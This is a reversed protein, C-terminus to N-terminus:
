RGFLRPYRDRLTDAQVGPAAANGCPLATCGHPLVYEHQAFSWYVAAACRAALRDREIVTLSPGQGGRAALYRRIASARAEAADWSAYGISSWEGRFPLMDPCWANTHIIYDLTM